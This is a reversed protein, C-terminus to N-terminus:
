LRAAHSVSVPHQVWSSLGFASMAEGDFWPSASHGECSYLQRPRVLGKLILIQHGREYSDQPLKKEPRPGAHSIKPRASLDPHASWWQNPCPNLPISRTM